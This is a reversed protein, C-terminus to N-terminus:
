ILYVVMCWEQTYHISTYSYSSQVISCMYQAYLRVVVPIREEDLMDELDRGGDCSGDDNTHAEIDVEMACQSTTELVLLPCESDASANPIRSLKALDQTLFKEWHNWSIPSLWSKFKPM